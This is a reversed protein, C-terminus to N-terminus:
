ATSRRRPAHRLAQAPHPRRPVGQPRRQGRRADGRGDAGSGARRRHRHEDARRRLRAGDRDGRRVRHGRRRRRHGAGEGARPHHAPQVPQPHRPGLRHARGAADGRRLRRGRAEPVPDPRRHLVAPRHLGGQGPDRAAELTAEVDPFLTKPDGIVELKVLEAIGLERALRCTRVADEATYCGATNPLIRTASATSPTSCAPRARADPRRPPAGRHRDRRGIRELAQARRRSRSTSAPASSCARASAHPRRHGAPRRRGGPPAARAAASSLSSRSEQRRRGALAETWTKRPM